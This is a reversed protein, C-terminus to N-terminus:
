TITPEIKFGMDQASAGAGCISQWADHRRSWSGDKPAVVYNIAGRKLLERHYWYGCAGAEYCSYVKIGAKVWEEVQNL